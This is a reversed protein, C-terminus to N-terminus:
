PYNLNSKHTSATRLRVRLPM